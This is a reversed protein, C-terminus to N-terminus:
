THLDRLSRERTIYGIGICTLGIGLEWASARNAGLTTSGICIDDAQM